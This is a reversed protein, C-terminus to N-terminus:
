CGRLGLIEGGAQVRDLGRRDRRGGRRRRSTSAAPMATLDHGHFVDAGAARDAVVRGWGNIVFRWRALFDVAGPGTHHLVNRGIVHGITRIM